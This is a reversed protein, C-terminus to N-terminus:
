LLNNNILDFLLFQVRVEQSKSNKELFDNIIAAVTLNPKVPLLVLKRPNKTIAKWDDLLLRKLGAPLQIKSVLDPDDDDDDVLDSQLLAKRKRIVELQQAEESKTSRSKKRSKTSSAGEESEDPIESNTGESGDFAEASKRKSSKSSSSSSSSKNSGKQLSSIFEEQAQTVSKSGIKFYGKALEDLKALDKDANKRALHGEEIWCDYKRAWGNYHIFYKSINDLSQVKLIKAEYVNAKDLAMVVEDVKFKSKVMIIKSPIKVREATSKM